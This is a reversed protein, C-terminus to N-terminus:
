QAEMEYVDGYEDTVEMIGYDVWEAEGYFEDGDDNMLSCEGYKGNMDCNGTIGLGEIDEVDYNYTYNGSTGTRHNYMFQSNTHYTPDKQVDDEELDDDEDEADDTQVIDIQQEVYYQRATSKKDSSCQYIFFIAVIIFIINKM